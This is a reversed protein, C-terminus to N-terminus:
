DAVPIGDTCVVSRRLVNQLEIFSSFFVSQRGVTQSVTRCQSFRQLHTIFNRWHFFLKTQRRGVSGFFLWHGDLERWIVLFLCQVVFSHFFIVKLIIWVFFWRNWLEIMHPSIIRCSCFISFRNLCAGVFQKEACKMSDLKIEAGYMDKNSVNLGFSPRIQFPSRNMRQPDAACHDRTYELCVSSNDFAPVITPSPVTPAWAGSVLAPTRTFPRIM